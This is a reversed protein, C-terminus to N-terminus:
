AAWDVRHAFPQTSDELGIGTTSAARIRLSSPGKASSAQDRDRFPAAQATSPVLRGKALDSGGQETRAPGNAGVLPELRAKLDKPADHGRVRPSGSM